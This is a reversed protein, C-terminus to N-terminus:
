ESELKLILGSSLRLDKAPPANKPAPTRGRIHIDGTGIKKAVGHLSRVGMWRREEQLYTDHLVFVVGKDPNVGCVKFTDKKVEIAMLQGLLGTSQLQKFDSMNAPQEQM